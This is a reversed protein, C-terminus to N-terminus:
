MLMKTQIMAPKRLHIWHDERNGTNQNGGAQGGSFPKLISANYTKWIFGLQSMHGLCCFTNLRCSWALVLGQLLRQLLTSCTKAYERRSCESSASTFLVLIGISDRLFWTEWHELALPVKFCFFVWFCPKYQLKFFQYSSM